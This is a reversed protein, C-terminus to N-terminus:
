GPQPPANVGEKLRKGARFKVSRGSAIEVAEGTRPNRGTRAQREAVTFVGFGTLAVDEGRELAEGIAVLAADVARLADNRSLRAGVAVCDVLEAKNM